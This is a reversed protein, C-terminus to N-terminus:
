PNRFATSSSFKGANSSRCSLKTRYFAAIATLAAFSDEVLICPGAPDEPLKECVVALAGKEFVQPIFSHGDVREGRTAIFVGGTEMRRSDIVVCNAEAQPIEGKCFIKGGCAKALNEITMEKM